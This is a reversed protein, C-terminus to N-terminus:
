HCGKQACKYQMNPDTPDWTHWSPLKEVKPKGLPGPTSSNTYIIIKTNIPMNDYIWKADGARLRVCGHSCTTGLKNYEGVDLRNANKVGWYPVSHFLYNGNIQSVWQGYSDDIMCLWRWKASLHFTGTPTTAGGSCVFARVPIIYGKSGDKAYITVTNKTKNVKIVFSSKDTLKSWSNAFRVGTTKSYYIKYGDHYVWGTQMAGTKSDLYYNYGKYLQKGKLKAGDKYLYKSDNETLWGNKEMTPTVAIATCRTGSVTFGGKTRLPRISFKYEKGLKLNKTVEFSRSTTEAVTYYINKEPNYCLVRYSTANTAANWTLYIKGDATGCKLGNVKAPATLTPTGGKSYLYGSYTTVGNVTRYARVQIRHEVNPKLTTITCSTGSTKELVTRIGTDLDIEYVIYGSADKSESWSVNISLEGSSVKFSGPLSPFVKSPTATVAECEPSIHTPTDSIYASVTVSYEKNGSIATLVLETSQTTKEAVTKGDANRVFVMYGDIDSVENWSVSLQNEGAAVSLGSVVPITDDVFLEEAEAIGPRFLIIGAVAIFILAFIIVSSRINKM